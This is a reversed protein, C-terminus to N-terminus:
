VHVDGGTSSGDASALGGSVALAAAGILALPALLKATRNRMSVEERRSSTREALLNLSLPQM